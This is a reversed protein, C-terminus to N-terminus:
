VGSRKRSTADVGAAILLVLGSFIETYAAKLQMLIMGNSIVVVVLGGIVADLIRGRGGFLSCGGIVAAGVALLLDNGGGTSPSVSNANSAYVIGAVGALSSCMVFCFTKTLPVNIGSRRAAEANGGIAYIHRGLPTRVLLFTLTLLLGLLLLVVDPVGQINAAKNPSRNKSLFATALGLIVALILSKLAWVGLSSTSLGTRRRQSIRYYNLAAFGGAVVLFLLWGLWIPLSANDINYVPKSTFQITGGEGVVALQVGQLGLFLALTVVFSPIGLRTVITGICLGIVSGTLVCVAMGLPWPWGHNSMVVAMVAAATGATFGASLDIEGLLLVFILGMSLIMVAAGQTILNAFNYASPFLSPREASFFIVLAILGLVAPLSGIDGGRVKDRYAKLTDGLGVQAPLAQGTTESVATATM